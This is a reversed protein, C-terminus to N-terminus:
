SDCWSHIKGDVQPYISYGVLQGDIGSGREKVYKALVKPEGARLLAAVVPLAARAGHQEIAPAHVTAESEGDRMLIGLDDRDLPKGIISVQVWQLSRKDFVVGEL